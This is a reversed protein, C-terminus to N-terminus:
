LLLGDLKCSITKYNYLTAASVHPIQLIYLDEICGISQFYHRRPLLLYCLQQDNVSISLQYLIQFSICFKSIICIYKSRCTYCINLGNMMTFISITYGQVVPNRFYYLSSPTKNTLMAWWKLKPLSSVSM